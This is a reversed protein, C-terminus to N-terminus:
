VGDAGDDNREDIARFETACQSCTVTHPLMVMEFDQWHDPLEEFEEMEHYQRYAEEREGPGFEAKVPMAFNEAGCDDCHWHYATQLEVSRM